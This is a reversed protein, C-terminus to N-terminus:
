KPHMPTLMKGLWFLNIQLIQIQIRDYCFKALHGKRGCHICTYVNAYMYDHTHAHHAHTHGPKHAHMHPAHKKRFMSELRTHNRPVNASLPAWVILM